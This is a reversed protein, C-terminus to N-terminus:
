RASGWGGRIAHIAAVSADAYFANIDAARAKDDGGLYGHRDLMHRGIAVKLGLAELSERAVDLEVTQFTASAPSVIGVTDGPRLHRPKVVSPSAALARSVPLQTALSALGAAKLFGRRHMRSIM